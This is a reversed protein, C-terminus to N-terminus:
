FFGAMAGAIRESGAILLLNMGLGGIALVARPYAFLGAAAVAAGAVPLLRAVLFAGAIGNHATVAGPALAAVLSLVSLVLLSIGAILLSRRALRLAAAKDQRLTLEATTIGRAM